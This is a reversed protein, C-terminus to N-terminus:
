LVNSYDSSQQLKWSNQLAQFKHTSSFSLPGRGKKHYLWPIIRQNQSAPPSFSLCAQGSHPFMIHHDAICPYHKLDAQAQLSYFAMHKTLFCAIWVKSTKVPLSWSRISGSSFIHANNFLGWFLLPNLGSGTTIMPLNGGALTATKELSTTEKPKSTEARTGRIRVWALFAQGSNRGGKGSLWVEELIFLFLV